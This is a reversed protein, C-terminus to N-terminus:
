SNAEILQHLAVWTDADANVAAVKEATSLKGWAVPDILSRVVAYDSLRNINRSSAKLLSVKIAATGSTRENSTLANIEAQTPVAGLVSDWSVLVPSGGQVDISYGAKDTKSAIAGGRKLLLADIDSSSQLVISLKTIAM